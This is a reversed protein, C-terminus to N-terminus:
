ARHQLVQKLAQALAAVAKGEASVYVFGPRPEGQGLVIVPLNLAFYRMYDAMASASFGNLRADVILMQFRERDLRQLAEDFSESFDLDIGADRPADAVARRNARDTVAALVRLGDQFVSLRGQSAGKRATQGNLVSSLTGLLDRAKFPKVMYAAAGSLYAEFEDEITDLATLFVIPIDATAPTSKINRGLTFGDQGPMMVDCVIVNFRSRQLADLAAAPSNAIEVAYNNRQLLARIIETVARNDDILLVSPM